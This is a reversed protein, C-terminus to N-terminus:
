RYLQQFSSRMQQMTESYNIKNQDSGIPSLLRRGLFQKWRDRIKEDACDSDLFSHQQLASFITQILDTSPPFSLKKGLEFRNYISELLTVHLVQTIRHINLVRCFIRVLEELPTSFQTTLKELTINILVGKTTDFEGTDAQAYDVLADLVKGSFTLQDEDSIDRSLKHLENFIDPWRADLQQNDHPLQRIYDDM